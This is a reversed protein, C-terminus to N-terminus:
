EQSIYKQIFTRLSDLALGETIKLDIHDAGPVECWHKQDSGAAEYMRRGMSIPTEKDKTGHIFLVPVALDRIVEIPQPHRDRLAKDAKLRVFWRMPWSIYIRQYPVTEEASTLSGELIVGSIKRHAATHISVATGLSYGYLFIPKSALDPRSALYDYIALADNLVAEFTPKGDSFGYGRYDLALVNLKLDTAFMNYRLTPWLVVDGLGNFYIITGKADPPKVLWGRLIVSDDVTIRVDERQLQDSLTPFRWPQLLDSEHIVRTCSSGAMIAIAIFVLFYVKRNM